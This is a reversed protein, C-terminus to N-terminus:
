VGAVDEATVALVRDAFEDFYSDALGYIVLDSLCSAVGDTTQLRLPFTGAVYQRADLLESATVPMERIRELESLIEEVARGTVEPQVASSVVFPGPDRRTVFTSSVGYTFGHPERLNLILRSSFAAGLLTNLVLIAFYAPT